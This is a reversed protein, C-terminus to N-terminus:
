RQSSIVIDSLHVIELRGTARGAPKAAQRAFRNFNDESDTVGEDSSESLIGLDQSELFLNGENRQEDSLDPLEGHAAISEPM